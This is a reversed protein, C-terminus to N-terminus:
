LSIRFFPGLSRNNLAMEEKATAPTGVALPYGYRLGRSSCITSSYPCTSSM